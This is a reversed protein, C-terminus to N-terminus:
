DSPPLLTIAERKAPHPHGGGVISTSLVGDRLALYVVGAADGWCTVQDALLWTPFGSEHRLGVFTPEGRLECVVNVARKYRNQYEDLICEWDSGDECVAEALCVELGDDSAEYLLDELMQALPKIEM